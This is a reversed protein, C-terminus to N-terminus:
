ERRQGRRSSRRGNRRSERRAEGWHARRTRAPLAAWLPRRCAGLLCRQSARRLTRAGNNASPAAGMGLQSSCRAARQQAIPRPGGPRNQQAHRPAIGVGAAQVHAQEDRVSGVATFVTASWTAFPLPLLRLAQWLCRRSPRAPSVKRILGGRPGTRRHPRGTEAWEEWRWVLSINEPQESPAKCYKPGYGGAEREEVTWVERDDIRPNLQRRRQRRLEMEIRLRVAFCFFSLEGSCSRTPWDAAYAGRGSLERLARTRGRFLEWERMGTALMHVLTTCWYPQPWWVCSFAGQAVDLPELLQSAMLVLITLCSSFHSLHSRWQFTSQGGWGSRQM